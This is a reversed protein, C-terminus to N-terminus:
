KPERAFSAVGYVTAVQVPLNARGLAEATLVLDFAPPPIVRGPLPVDVLGPANLTISDGAITRRVGDREQFEWSLRVGGSSEAPVVPVQIVDTAASPWPTGIRAAAGGHQERFRVGGGRFSVEGFDYPGGAAHVWQSGDRRHIWATIEYRGDRVAVDEDWHLVLPRGASVRMERVASRYEYADWPKSAGPAALLFWARVIGDERSTARLSVSLHQGALTARTERVEFGPDRGPPLPYRPPWAFAWAVIAM